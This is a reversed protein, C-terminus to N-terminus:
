FAVQVENLFASEDPRNHGDPAGRDFFTRIYDCQLKVNANLYWNFGIGYETATRASSSLSAFGDKFVDSDVGLGGVRAKVEFAGWHGGEPDFNHLPEVTYYTANEGTLLYSTQVQWAHNSFTKYSNIYPEGKVAQLLNVTQTDDVYDTLLGFPGWYYFAQPSYRYHMGSATANNAYSFFTQQGATVYKSLAGREDGYSGAFGIGLGRAFEIGSNRFPLAFLRGVFDKGDNSDTDVSATNNPVGNMLALQYTLRGGLLQESHLELGIDRNPILNNTMGRQVWELDRASQLREIGFPAKYKGIMLQALPLYKANLCADELVTKGQGFDPMIKYDYDKFVTGELVPRVRNLYFTSGTSPKDNGSTFFNGEGQIYGRIRLKFDGEPSSISVGQSSPVIQPLEKTKAQLDKSQVEVRRDLIKVRQDLTELQDIRQQLEKVQQRLQEIQPQVQADQAYAVHSLALAILVGSAIVPLRPKRM